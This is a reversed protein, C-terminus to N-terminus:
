GLFKAFDTIKILGYFVTNGKEDTVSYKETDMISTLADYYKGFRAAVNSDDRRGDAFITRLYITIYYQQEFCVGPIMIVNRDWATTTHYVNSKDSSNLYIYVENFTLSPNTNLGDGFAPTYVQFHEVNPVSANESLIDTVFSAKEVQFAIVFNANNYKEVISYASEFKVWTYDAICCCAYAEYEHVNESYACVFYCNSSDFGIHLAQTGNQIQTIKTAMTTDPMDHEMLRERLYDVLVCVLDDERQLEMPVNEQPESPLQASPTKDCGVSTALLLSLLFILIVMRMFNISKM